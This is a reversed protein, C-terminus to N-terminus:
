PICTWSTFIPSEAVKPPTISPQTEHNIYRHPIPYIFVCCMAFKFESYQNFKPILNWNYLGEKELTREFDEIREYPELYHNDLLPAATYNQFWDDCGAHGPVSTRFVVIDGSKRVRNILKVFDDFYEKYRGFSHVHPGMNAFLLTKGPTSLYKPLWPFCYNHGCNPKEDKLKNIENSLFDNRTFDITFACAKDFCDVCRVWENSEEYRPFVKTTHGLLGWLAMAFQQQLSDGIIHIRKLGLEAMVNCFGKRSVPIIPCQADVWRYTTARRFPQNRSAKYYPEFTHEFRNDSTFYRGNQAAFKDDQVWLGRQGRMRLCYSSDHQPKVYASLAAAGGAGITLDRTIATAIADRKNVFLCRLTLLLVVASLFGIGSSPVMIAM